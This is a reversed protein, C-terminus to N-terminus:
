QLGRAPTLLEYEVAVVARPHDVPESADELLWIVLPPCTDADRGQAAPNRRSCTRTVQSM